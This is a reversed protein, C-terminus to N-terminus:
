QKIEEIRSPEKHRIFGTQYDRLFYGAIFWFVTWMTITLILYKKGIEINIM